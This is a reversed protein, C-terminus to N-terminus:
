VDKTEPWQCRALVTPRKRSIAVPRQPTRTSRVRTMPGVQIRRAAVDFERPRAYEADLTQGRDRCRRSRQDVRGHLPRQGLRTPRAPRVPGIQPRRTASGERRSAADCPIVASPVIATFSRCTVEPMRWRPPACRVLRTSVPDGVHQAQGPVAGFHVTECRALLMRVCLHPVVCELQSQAPWRSM